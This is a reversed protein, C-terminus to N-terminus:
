NVFPYVLTLQYFWGCQLDFCKPKKLLIKSNLNTAWKIPLIKLYIKFKPVFDILSILLSSLEIKNNITIMIKTKANKPKM